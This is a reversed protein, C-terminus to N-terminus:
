ILELILMYLCIYAYIPMRGVLSILLLFVGCAIIGGIIEIQNVIAAYKGYGAVTIM